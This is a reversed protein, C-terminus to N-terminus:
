DWTLMEFTERLMSRKKANTAIGAAQQAADVLISDVRSRLSAAYVVYVVVSVMAVVV